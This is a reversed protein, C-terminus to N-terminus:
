QYEVNWDVGYKVGCCLFIYIFPFLRSFDEGASGSILFLM